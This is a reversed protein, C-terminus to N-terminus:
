DDAELDPLLVPIKHEGGTEDLHNFVSVTSPVKTADKPIQTPREGKRMQRFSSPNSYSYNTTSNADNENIFLYASLSKSGNNHPTILNPTNGSGAFSFLSRTSSRVPSLFGNQKSTLVTIDSLSQDRTKKMDFDDDVLSFLSYVSDDDDSVTVSQSLCLLSIVGPKHRLLEFICTLQNLGHRKRTKSFSVAKERTSLQHFDFTSMENEILTSYWLPNLKFSAALEFPYLSTASDKVKSSSPHVTILPSVEKWDKGRVLSIHLPLRGNSTIRTAEKYAKLVLCLTDLGYPVEFHQPQYTMTGACIHLPYTSTGPIANAATAPYMRLLLEIVLPPCAQGCAAHLLYDNTKPIDCSSENWICKKLNQWWQELEPLIETLVISNRLAALNDYRVRYKGKSGGGYVWSLYHLSLASLSRLNQSLASSEKYLPRKQIADPHKRLLQFITSVQRSEHEDAVRGYESKKESLSMNRWETPTFQCRMLLQVNRFQIPLAAIQFPFLKSPADRMGVLRKNTSIMSQIFTWSQGGLLALHIPLSGKARKYLQESDIEYMHNLVQDLSSSVSDNNIIDYRWRTCAIHVPLVKYFLSVLFLLLVSSLISYM